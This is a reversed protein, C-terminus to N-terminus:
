EYMQKGWVCAMDGEFFVNTGARIFQGEARSWRFIMRAMTCEDVVIRIL